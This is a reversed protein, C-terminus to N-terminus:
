FRMYGSIVPILAEAEKPAYRPSVALTMFDFPGPASYSAYDPYVLFPIEPEPGNVAELLDAAFSRLRIRDPRDPLLIQPPIDARSRPNRVNELVSIWRFALAFLLYNAETLQRIRYYRGLDPRIEPKQPLVGNLVNGPGPYGIGLDSHADVHTVWFPATLEGARMRDLWFDLALDHTEFVAGPIRRSESLGCGRELFSRVRAEPWPEHGNLEPRAGPEALPCCDNLFFDLDIDLVRM